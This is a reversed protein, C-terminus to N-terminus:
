MRTGKYTVDGSPGSNRYFDNARAEQIKGETSGSVQTGGGKRRRVHGQAFSQLNARTEVVVLLHHMAQPCCCVIM